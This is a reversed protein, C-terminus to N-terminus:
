RRSMPCLCTMCGPRLLEEEFTVYLSDRLGQIFDLITTAKTELISKMVLQRRFGHGCSLDNRHVDLGMRKASYM